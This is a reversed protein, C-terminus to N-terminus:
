EQETLHIRSLARLGFGIAALACALVALPIGVWSVLPDPLLRVGPAGFTGLILRLGGQGCLQAAVAGLVAGAAAVVGFRVLYIRALQARSAGIARLSALMGRERTIILTLNMTTIVLVLLCGSAVAVVAATRLQGALAGMTEAAYETMLTVKAGPLVASLSDAIAAPDADDAVDLYVVQWMPSQSLELRTKATKGGNTIDQYVGSVTLSLEQGEDRITVEDGVDVGLQTSEGVSLAIQQDTTPASGRDYSLPFVEHDGSEIVVTDWEGDDKGLEYRDSALVVSSGIDTRASVAAEVDATTTMGDRVDVRVDAQGVGLYTVFRADQVTALISAPVVAAVVCLGVVAALLISSRQGAANLGLRAPASLRSSTLAPRTRPGRRRPSRTRGPLVRRRGPVPAGAAARLAEVVSIRDIRALMFWCSGMVVLVSLLAGGVPALVLPGVGDPSGLYLLVPRQLVNTLPLCAALGATAGMIALAAYTVLYLWRISATPAGIAKLAGIQGLDEELAALLAFRLALLVVVALVGAVLLVAAALVFTSVGSLLRFVTSDVMIGDAPLGSATYAAKLETNTVGDAGLLEIYDEAELYPSVAEYDAASVVLRKSTTLSSNMQADRVFGAVTLDLEVDGARVRVPDGVAATGQAQYYVPLWIEGLAPDVRRGSPDVLLDFREPSTVLAPELVSDAQSVGDIWLQSGPVPLTAMVMHDAVAPEDAAWADVRSELDARCDADCSSDSGSRESHIQVVDPPNAQKWLSETADMTRAILASGAASLTACITILIVLTTTVTRSRRLEARGLRLLLRSM